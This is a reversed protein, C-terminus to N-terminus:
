EGNFEGETSVRRLRAGDRMEQLNLIEAVEFRPPVSDPVPHIRIHAPFYGMRGHLEALLALSIFNLSPPNVLIAEVQWAEASLPIQDVLERVQLAFPRQNDFQVPIDLIKQSDEDTLEELRALQESPIPHGFNIIIVDVKWM